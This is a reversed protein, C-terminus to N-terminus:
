DLVHGVGPDFAVGIRQHADGAGVDAAGVEVHVFAAGVHLRAADEAVLVHALHDLDALGHVADLDAVHHRQGEVDAAAEALVALAPQAVVAEGAVRSQGPSGVAEGVHAGVVAALGFQQAHGIRVVVASM